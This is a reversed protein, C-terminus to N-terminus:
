NSSFMKEMIKGSPKNEGKEWRRITKENVGFQKAMQQITWGKDKRIEKIDIEQNESKTKDWKDSRIHVNQNSLIDMKPTEKIILKESKKIKSKEEKWVVSLLYTFLLILGDVLFALLFNMVSSATKNQLQAEKKELPIQKVNLNDFQSILNMKQKNLSTINKNYRLILWKDNETHLQSIQNQKSEIQRELSNIQNDLREKKEILSENISVIKNNLAERKTSEKEVKFERSLFTIGISVSFLLFAFFGIYYKAKETVKHSFFAIESLTKGGLFLILSVVIADITLGMAEKLFAKEFYVNLYCGCAIFILLITTLIVKM